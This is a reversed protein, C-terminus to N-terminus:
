ECVGAERFSKVTWRTGRKYCVTVVTRNKSVNFSFDPLQAADGDQIVRGPCDFDHISIPDTGSWGDSLIRLEALDCATQQALHEDADHSPIRNSLEEKRASLAHLDRGFWVCFSLFSVLAISSVAVAVTSSGPM